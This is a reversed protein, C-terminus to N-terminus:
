LAIMQYSYNLLGVIAPLIDFKYFINIIKVKVQVQWIQNKQFSSCFYLFLKTFYKYVIYKSINTTNFMNESCYRIVHSWHPTLLGQLLKFDDEITPFSVFSRISRVM